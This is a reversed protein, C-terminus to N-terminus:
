QLQQRNDRSNIHSVVIIAKISIEHIKRRRKRNFLSDLDNKYKSEKLILITYKRNLLFMSVFFNLMSKLLTVQQQISAISCSDFLKILFYLLIKLITLRKRAVIIKALYLFEISIEQDFLFQIFRCLIRRFSYNFIALFKSLFFKDVIIIAVGVLFLILFIRTQKKISELRNTSVKVIITCDFLFRELM